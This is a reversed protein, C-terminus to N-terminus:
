PGVCCLDCDYAPLQPRGSCQVIGCLNGGQSGCSRVCGGDLLISHPPNCQTDNGPPIDGDSTIYMRDLRDGEACNAIVIEHPGANLDFTLPTGYDADDHFRDWWWVEGTTIRWKYSPGGDLQIWFTNHLADPSHIRGWIVYTAPTTIDFGYRARAPGPQDLSPAGIPPEIDRGGSASPDNGITFGGSLQGSEAELYFGARLNPLWAGVSTVSADCGALAAATTLAILRM